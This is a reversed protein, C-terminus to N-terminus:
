GGSVPTLIALRDGDALTHDADVHEENVAFSLPLEALHHRDARRALEAVVDRISRGDEGIDFCERDTGFREKLQAFYLLEIQM